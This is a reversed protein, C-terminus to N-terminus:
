KYDSATMFMIKIAQVRGGREKIYVSYGGDGKPSKAYVGEEVLGIGAANSPQPYVGPADREGGGVQFRSEEFIGAFTSDVIVEGAKKWGAAGKKKIIATLGKVDAYEEHCVVLSDVQLARSGMRTHMAGVRWKGAAAAELVACGAPLVGPDRDVSEASPDIVIMASGETVEFTSSFVKLIQPHGKLKSLVLEKEVSLVDLARAARGSPAQDARFHAVAGMCRVFDDPFGSLLKATRENRKFRFGVRDGDRLDVSADGFPATLSDVGRGDKMGFVVLGTIEIPREAEWLGLSDDVCVAKRDAVYACELRDVLAPIDGLDSVVLQGNAALSFGTITKGAEGVAGDEGVKARKSDRAEGPASRERHEGSPPAEAEPNYQLLSAGDENEHDGNSLSGMMITASVQDEFWEGVPDAISRMGKIWKSQRHGYSCM